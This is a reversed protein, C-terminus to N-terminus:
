CTKKDLYLQVLMYILAEPYKKHSNRKKVFDAKKRFYICMSNIICLEPLWLLVKKWWKMSRRSVPYYSLYQDCKDVGGMYKNYEHTTSPKMLKQAHQQVHVENNGHISSFLYTGKTKGISLQFEMIQKSFLQPALILNRTFSIQLFYDEISVFQLALGFKELCSNTCQLMVQTFIILPWM